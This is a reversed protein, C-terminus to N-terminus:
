KDTSHIVGSLVDFGFLVELQGSVLHLEVSIAKGFGSSTIRSDPSYWANTVVRNQITERGIGRM